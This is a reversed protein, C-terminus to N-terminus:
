NTSQAALTSPDMEANLFSALKEPEDTGLCVRKGDRLSIAVAGFGSVNYLWGFRTYHIGWGELAGTKVVQASAIEQLPIKKTLWGSGFKWILETETIEITLSRFVCGAVLLIIGAVLLPPFFIAGCVFGLALAGIIFLVTTASQTHQYKKM